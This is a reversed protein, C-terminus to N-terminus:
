FFNEEAPFLNSLDFYLGPTRFKLNMFPNGSALPVTHLIYTDMKKWLSPEYREDSESCLRHYYCLTWLGKQNM